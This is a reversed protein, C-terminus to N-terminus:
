RVFWSEFKELAGAGYKGHDYHRLIRERPPQFLGPNPSLSIRDLGSITEEGAPDGDIVQLVLHMQPSIWVEHITVNPQGAENRGQTTTRIGKARIGEIQREGLDLFSTGPDTIESPLDPTESTNQEAKEVQDSQLAIEVYQTREGYEGDPWDWFVGQNPDFLVLYWEDCVPLKSVKPPDCFEDTSASGSM